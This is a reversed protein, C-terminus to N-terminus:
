DHQLYATKISSSVFPFSSKKYFENKEIKTPYHNEIKVGRDHLTM